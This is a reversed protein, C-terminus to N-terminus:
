LLPSKFSSHCSSNLAQEIDVRNTIHWTAPERNQVMANQMHHGVSADRARDKGFFRKESKPIMGQRLRRIRPSKPITLDTIGIHFVLSWRRWAPSIESL